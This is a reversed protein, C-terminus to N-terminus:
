LVIYEIRWEGDEKVLWYEVPTATGDRARLVGILTGFGASAERSNFSADENEKLSINGDVFVKFDELSTTKQFDKSTLSYAKIYDQNRLAGLQERVVDIIGKTAWFAISAAIFVTIGILVIFIIKKRKSM